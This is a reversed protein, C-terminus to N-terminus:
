GFMQNAWRERKREHRSMRERTLFRVVDEYNIQREPPERLVEPPAPLPEETPAAPSLM